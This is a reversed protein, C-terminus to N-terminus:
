CTGAVKLTAAQPYVQRLRHPRSGPSKGSPDSLEFDLSGVMAGGVPLRQSARAPTSKGIPIRFTDFNSFNQCQLTSILFTQFIPVDLKCFKQHSTLVKSIQPTRSSVSPAARGGVPSCWFVNSCHNGLCHSCMQSGAERFEWVNHVTVRSRQLQLNRPVIYLPRRNQFGVVNRIVQWLSFFEYAVGM